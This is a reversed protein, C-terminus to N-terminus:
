MKIKNIFYLFKNSLSFLSSINEIQDACIRYHLSDKWSFNIGNGIRLLTSYYKKAQFLVNQNYKGYPFVFSTVPHGLKSELLTKSEKLELELSSPSQSLDIHHMGHSAIEIHGSETMEKLEQYSCFAYSPPNKQFSFNSLAKLRNESSLTHHDAIYGAPVALLAKLNYAKLLPYVFHYFDYTADDFSLCVRLKKGIYPSESPLSLIHHKKLYCFHQELTEISNGYRCAFARHYLLIILM